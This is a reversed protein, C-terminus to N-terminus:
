EDGGIEERLMDHLVDKLWAAGEEARDAEAKNILLLMTLLAGLTLVHVLRSLDSAVALELDYLGLDRGVLMGYFAAWAGSITGIAHVAWRRHWTVVEHKLTRLAFVVAAGYGLLVMFRTITDLM